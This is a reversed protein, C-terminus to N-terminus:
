CRESSEAVESIQCLRIPHIAPFQSPLAFVCRLTFLASEELLESEMRSEDSLGKCLEVVNSFHFGELLYAKIRINLIVLFQRKSPRRLMLRQLM